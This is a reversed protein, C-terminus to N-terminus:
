KLEIARGMWPPLYITRDEDILHTFFIRLM